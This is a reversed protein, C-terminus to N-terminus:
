TLIRRLIIEEKEIFPSNKFWIVYLHNNKHNQQDSSTRLTGIKIPRVTYKM